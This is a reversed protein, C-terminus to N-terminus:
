QGLWLELEDGSALPSPVLTYCAKPHLIAIHWIWRNRITARSRAEHIIFAKFIAAFQQPYIVVNIVIKTTLHCFEEISSRHKGITNYIYNDFSQKQQVSTNNQFVKDLSGGLDMGQSVKYHGHRHCEHYGIYINAELTKEVLRGSDFCKKVQYLHSVDM